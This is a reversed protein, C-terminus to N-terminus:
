LKGWLYLLTGCNYSVRSRFARDLQDINLNKLPSVSEHTRGGSGRMDVGLASVVVVM